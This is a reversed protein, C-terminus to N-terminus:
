LCPTSSKRSFVGGPKSAQGGHWVFCSPCLVRIPNPKVQVPHIIGCRPCKPEHPRNTQCPRHQSSCRSQLGKRDWPRESRWPIRRECGWEFGFKVSKGARHFPRTTPKSAPPCFRKSSWSWSAGVISTPPRSDCPPTKFIHATRAVDHSGDWARTPCLREVSGHCPWRRPKMPAVLRPPPWPRQPSRM